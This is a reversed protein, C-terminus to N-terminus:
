IISLVAKAEAVNKINRIGAVLDRPMVVEGKETKKQKIEEAKNIIKDLDSKNHENLITMVDKTHLALVRGAWAMDYEDIRQSQKHLLIHYILAYRVGRFMIRRFFSTPLDTKPPMLMNFAIKFAEITDHDCEYEEHIDNNWIKDWEKKIIEQYGRMDYIPFDEPPRAPDHAAIVYSFRQAFGDLISEASVYKNFVSYVSMGLITLVPNEVVVTEKKTNREIREQDYVRLLYDKMESMYTQNELNYLFQGFEDRLWFGPTYDRLIEVFKASSGPEPISDIDTIHNKLTSKVFSKGAGSEALLVLWLDPKVTQGVFNIKVDKKLLQASVFCLTTFFPIELPIDTRERFASVIKDLLSGPPVAVIGRWDDQSPKFKLMIQVINKAEESKNMLELMSMNKRDSKPIRGM